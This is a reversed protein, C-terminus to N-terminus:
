IGGYSQQLMDCWIHWNGYRPRSWYLALKTQRTEVRLLSTAYGVIPPGWQLVVEYMPLEFRHARSKCSGYSCGGVSFSNNYTYFM